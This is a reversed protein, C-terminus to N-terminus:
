NIPPPAAIENALDGWSKALDLWRLKEDESLAGEAMKRCNQEQERYKRERLLRDLGAAAATWRNYTM